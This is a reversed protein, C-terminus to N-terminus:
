IFYFIDILKVEAVINKDKENKLEFMYYAVYLSLITAGNSYCAVVTQWMITYLVVIPLPLVFYNAKRQYFAKGFPSITDQTEFSPNHPGVCIPKRGRSGVWVSGM